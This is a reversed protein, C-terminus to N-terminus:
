LTCSREAATTGIGGMSVPAGSVPALENWRANVLTGSALKVKSADGSPMAMYATQGDHRRFQFVTYWDDTDQLRAIAVMKVDPKTIDTLKVSGESVSKGTAPESKESKKPKLKM